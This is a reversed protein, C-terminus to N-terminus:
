PSQREPSSGATLIDQDERDMEVDSNPKKTKDATIDTPATIILTRLKYLDDLDGAFSCNKSAYRELAEVMKNFQRKNQSEVITQFVHGNMGETEGKFKSRISCPYRPKVSAGSKDNDGDNRGNGNNHNPDSGGGTSTENNDNAM